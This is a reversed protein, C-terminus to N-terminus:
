IQPLSPLPSHSLHHPFLALRTHSLSLCLFIYIYIHVSFPSLFRSLLCFRAVSRSFFRALFRSLFLSCVTLCIGKVSGVACYDMLIWMEGLKQCTGYYSLVNPSKCRKLIDIQTKHMSTSHTLSVFLCVWVMSVCRSNSRFLFPSLSFSLGYLSTCLFLSFFSLHPSLERNRERQKQCVYVEKAVTKMGIESMPVSKVALTFGTERYLSALSFSLSPSYSFFIFLFLFLYFYLVLALSISFSLGNTAM